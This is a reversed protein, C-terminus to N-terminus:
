FAKTKEIWTAIQKFSQGGDNMRALKEQMSDPDNEKAGKNELGLKIAYRNSLLEANGEKESLKRDLACEKLVGLCCHTRLTGDWGNEADGGICMLTGEGQKYEGSRLAKVWKAKLRKNMAM